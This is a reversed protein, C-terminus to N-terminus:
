SATWRPVAATRYINRLMGLLSESFHNILSVTAIAKLAIIMLLVFVTRLVYLNRVKM